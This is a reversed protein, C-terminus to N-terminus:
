KPVSDQETALNDLNPEFKRDEQRQRGFNYSNCAHAVMGLSELTWALLVATYLLDLIFLSFARQIIYKCVVRSSVFYFIISAPHKVIVLIWLMCSKEQTNLTAILQIELFLYKVPGLIINMLIRQYM